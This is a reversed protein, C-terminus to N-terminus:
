KFYTCRIVLQLRFLLYVSGHLTNSCTNHLTLRTIHFVLHNTDRQTFIPARPRNQVVHHTLIFHQGVLTILLTTFIQLYQSVNRVSNYSSRSNLRLEVTELSLFFCILSVTEMGPFNGSIFLIITSGVRPFSRELFHYFSKWNAKQLHIHVTM